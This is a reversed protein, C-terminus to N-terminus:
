CPTRRCAECGACPERRCDRRHVAGTPAGTEAAGKPVPRLMGHSNGAKPLSDEVGLTM